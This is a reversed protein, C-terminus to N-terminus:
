CPSEEKAALTEPAARAAMLKAHLEADVGELWRVFAGDLRVLGDRDHLDAFNLGHALALATM